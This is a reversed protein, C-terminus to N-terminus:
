VPREPLRLLHKVAQYLVLPEYEEPELRFYASHEDVM